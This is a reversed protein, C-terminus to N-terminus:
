KLHLMKPRRVGTYVFCFICIYQKHTLLCLVFPYCLLLLMFVFGNFPSQQFLAYRNTLGAQLLEVRQFETLQTIPDAVKTRLVYLAQTRVKVKIERVRAIMANMTEEDTLPVSDVAEIRNSVSPDHALNWLLAELVSKQHVSLDKNNNSNSNEIFFNAAAAIAHQRVSQSKDTLRPLLTEQATTLAAEIWEDNDKNNIKHEMLRFIVYGLLKCAHGRVRELLVSSFEVARALVVTGVNQSYSISFAAALELVRDISDQMDTSVDAGIAADIYQLLIASIETEIENRNNDDNNNNLNINTVGTTLELASLENQIQRVRAGLSLHIREDDQGQRQQAEFHPLLIISLTTQLDAM